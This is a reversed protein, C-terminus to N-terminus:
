FDGKIKSIIKKLKIDWRLKNEGYKRMENIYDENKIKNYFDMIKYLNIPEENQPVYYVYKFNEPFDNDISSLIFPLGKACYERNKLASEKYIGKRHNGLSGIGIDAINFLEELEKEKKFGHFIIYKELKLNNSLEKLNNLEEGEGAIHFYIKESPNNNYYEYLGKIVRDYGHWKSVKAVGLLNINEHKIPKRLSIENLDIGNEIKITSIGYIEDHDSFTVIYDIYKKLKGIYFTEILYTIRAKLRKDENRFPYTPIELFIKKNKIKKLFNIFYFDTYPYRIYLNEIDREKIINYLFNYMQTRKEIKNNFRTILKKEEKENLFFMNYKDFYILGTKIYRNFAKYQSFIKKKVGYYNKDELNYHTFYILNM